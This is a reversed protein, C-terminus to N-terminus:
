RGDEIERDDDKLRADGRTRAAEFANSLTCALSRQNLALSKLPQHEYKEEERQQQLADRM